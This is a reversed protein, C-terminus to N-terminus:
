RWAWGYTLPAERFAFRDLHKSVVDKIRDVKRSGEMTSAAIVGQEEMYTLAPYVVSPSPAYEGGSLTEIEKILDYGHRPQEALLGLLLTQLEVQDFLGRRRGSGRPGGPGFPGAPGGGFGHGRMGKGSPGRGYETGEGCRHHHHAHRM